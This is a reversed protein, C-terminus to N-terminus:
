SLFNSSINAASKHLYGVPRQLNEAVVRLGASASVIRALPRAEESNILGNLQLAFAALDIEIQRIKEDVVTLAEALKPSAKTVGNFREDIDTVTQNFDNLEEVLHNWRRQTEEGPFYISIKIALIPKLNDWERDAAISYDMTERYQAQNVHARYAGAINANGTFWKSVSQIIEEEAASASDIRHVRRSQAAQIAGQSMAYRHQIYSSILFVFLGGAVTVLLPSNLLKFLRVLRRRKRFAPDKSGNSEPSSETVM